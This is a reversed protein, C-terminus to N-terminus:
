KVNYYFEKRGLRGTDDMGEVVVKYRGNGDANYYDLTVKGNEDLQVDPNWYITTRYDNTAKSQSTDYKPLYFKREKIYGLPFIDIVNTKPILAEIQSLTMRPGKPKEKKTIISVVGDNQYMRSVTGLDDRLFIEVAEIEHPQVSNLMNEDIPMGNLFFQVPVRSGQNYNRTVYYKLTNNDYTIGTLLTSLCMTLVNCGSFRDGEIRHEAMSLGSLSSFEKSTRSTQVTRSVVVEDILISKRYENKSNELYPTLQEDINLVENATYPNREDIAPFYTQDLNIVLSRYNDNGRANINVKSSDPFVLNEFVFRGNQDTYVDKRYARSPISLLLGGNPFPRGTNLLLTGSLSIGQEPLYSVKPLKEAILDAYDFRRFGQTMMLADLAEQRNEVKPDFYYAPKEVFGKLDSTLLLSSIITNEQHPDYPVKAEDIVSVSLTSFNKQATLNSIDLKVQEKRAYNAKDTKVDLQLYEASSNFVLRESLPQGQASMLTFQMIGNPINTKPVNITVSANKMTAQAGYILHGNLQGFIYFPTNQVKSFYAENALISLQVHDDTQQGLVLNIGEAKVEPFDVTKEQGNPFTVVAKYTQGAQPLLTFYGMGLGLDTFEAVTNKKGDIVKGKVALGKGDQGIAKFAVKKELGALLDGGEPFFQVDAEWIADKLPFDGVLSSEGELKVILRGKKLLDKNKTSFTINARGMDDTEGRGKDFPDWGDIAEWTLKRKGLLAGKGDRFQVTAKTKNGDPVYVINTGLKKNIADGVTVIKNYFYAPDFNMMWKTYGRFRYNDQKVIQPDLVFYGNGVGKELPIKITQILSDRGNIIDVYGIKSPLYELQNHYLYMKFWLTDGVAYYPKDFHLHVKEVPYVSLFKQVREVVTNIPIAPLDQAKALSQVSLFLVLFLIFKNKIM